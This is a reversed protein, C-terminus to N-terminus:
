GTAYDSDVAYTDVDVPVAQAAKVGPHKSHHLKFRCWEVGVHIRGM